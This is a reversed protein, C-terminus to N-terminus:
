VRTSGGCVLQTDTSQHNSRQSGRKRQKSNSSHIIHIEYSTFPLRTFIGHLVVMALSFPGTLMIWCGEESKKIRLAHQLGTPRAPGTPRSVQLDSSRYTQLEVRPM